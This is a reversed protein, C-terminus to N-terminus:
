CAILAYAILAVLGALTPILLRKILDMVKVDAGACLILLPSSAPTLNMGLCTAQNSLQVLTGLDAGTLNSVSTFFPVFINAMSTVSACGATCLMGIVSGVIVMLVLGGANSMVGTLFDIGGLVSMLNALMTGGLLLMFGMILFNSCGELFAKIGNLGEVPNKRFKFMNFLFAIFFSLFIAANSSMAYKALVMNSFVLMFVLPLIPLIAFAAPAEPRKIEVVSDLAENGNGEKRSYIPDTVIFAIIMAVTMCATSIPGYQLFFSAPDSLGALSVSLVTVNATPSWSSSSIIGVITASSLRSFGKARLLPFMTGVALAMFIPGGAIVTKILMGIIIMIAALVYKNKIYQLPKSMTYTFMDTAGMYDMYKIYGFLLMPILFVGSFLRVTTNVIYELWDIILYGTTKEGLLSQGSILTYLLLCSVSVLMLVASPNVKKNILFVVAVFVLITLILGLM